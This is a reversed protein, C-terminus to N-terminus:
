GTGGAVLRLWAQVADRATRARLVALGARRVVQRGGAGGLAVIVVRGFRRGQPVLASVLGPADGTVVVLSGGPRAQAASRLLSEASGDARRVAALRDLVDHGGARRVAAIDEGACHLSVPRAARTAAVVISAAVEVAEEFLAAELTTDLVVATTPETTDVHERVILTGARATSPWHIHRPEDGPAYERLSAFATSGRPSSSALRGEFDLVVGLPITPLPHVRPRVWLWDQGSLPEIRRILGLSDRREVVVPGVALLGRRGTPLAGTVELRGRGGTAPVPLRLPEGGIREVATFSPAPLRSTNTVVLRVHAPEDVTVRDPVLRRSVTVRPRVLTAGFGALLAAAAALGLGTLTRYGGALGAALLGAGGALVAWGAASLRIGSM